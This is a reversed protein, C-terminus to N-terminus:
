VWFRKRAEIDGEFYPSGKCRGRLTLPILPTIEVISM